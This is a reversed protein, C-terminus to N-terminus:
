IWGFHKLAYALGDEDSRLTVYDAMEKLSEVGNGMAISMPASAFMKIDNMGDGFVVVDEERGQLVDLMHKVGEYKDDPEIMVHHDHYRSPVLSGYDAIIDEHGRDIAIMMRFIDPLAFYDLDSQIRIDAHCEDGQIARKFHDNHTYFIFDDSAAVILPIDKELCERILSHCDKLDMGKNRTFTGNVYCTYGGNCVINDIGALAAFEKAAVYPRGTAIAVEHGNQRLKSIAAKASEPIGGRFSKGDTLTGDIDFFFYKKNM